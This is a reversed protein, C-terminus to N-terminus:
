LQTSLAERRLIQGVHPDDGADHGPRLPSGRPARLPPQLRDPQLTTQRHHRDGHGVDRPVALPRLRRRHPLRAAGPQPRWPLHVHACLSAEIRWQGRSQQRRNAGERHVSAGEPPRVPLTRRHVAALPAARASVGDDPAYQSVPHGGGHFRPGGPRVGGGPRISGCRWEQSGYIHLSKAGTEGRRGCLHRPPHGLPGASRRETPRIVRRRVRDDHRM